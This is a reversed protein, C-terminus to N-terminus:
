KEIKREGVHTDSSEMGNGEKLNETNRAGMDRRKKKIFSQKSVCGQMLLKCVIDNDRILAVHRPLTCNFSSPVHHHVASYTFPFSVFLTPLWYWENDPFKTYGANSGSIRVGRIGTNSQISAGASKFPSTRKAFFL